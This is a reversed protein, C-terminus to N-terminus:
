SKGKRGGRRFSDLIEEQKKSPKSLEVCHGDVYKYGKPCKKKGM